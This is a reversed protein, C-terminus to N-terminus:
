EFVNTKILITKVPSHTVKLSNLIIRSCREEPGCVLRENWKETRLRIIIIINMGYTHLHNIIMNNENYQLMIPM